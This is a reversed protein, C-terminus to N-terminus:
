WGYTNYIKIKSSPEDINFWAGTEVTQFARLLPVPICARKNVEQFIEM